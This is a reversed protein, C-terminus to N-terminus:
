EINTLQAKMIIVDQDRYLAKNVTQWGLKKYFNEQDPTYLYLEKIGAEAAKEMVHLVLKGGAGKGRHQPSVVVSALWPTLDPRTLMDSVIIAASGIIDNDILIYTSPVLDESLHSRLRDKRDQLTKPSVMSWEDHQWQAIIDISDPALKLNVAKV